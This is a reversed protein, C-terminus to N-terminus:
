SKAVLARLTLSLRLALRLPALYWATYRSALYTYASRHHIKIMARSNRRTSHGGEHTVEASPAYVVRGGGAAIRACLDVDEFYMQYKDDFGGVLEFVDRRVLLCAGSLWGADRQRPPSERDALYARTWPNNKTVMGVLAHGVGHRLSPLRRASPYIEGAPTRILPGVVAIDPDSTGVRIMEDIAGPSFTLDPNALLLWDADGVNQAGLNMAKGYGLNSGSELLETKSSTEIASALDADDVANNVVVITPESSSAQHISELFPVLVEASYYSVTVVALTSGRDTM